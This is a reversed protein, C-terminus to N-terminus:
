EDEAGLFFVLRRAERYVQALTSESLHLDLRFPSAVDGNEGERTLEVQGLGALHDVRQDLLSARAQDEVQALELEDVRRRQSIEDLGGLPELLQVPLQDERLRRLEELRGDLREPDVLDEPDVGVVLLRHLVEVVVVGLLVFLVLAHHDVVLQEAGRGHEEPEQVRGLGHRDALDQGDVLVPRVKLYGDSGSLTFISGSSSMM